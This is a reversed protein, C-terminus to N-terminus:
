AAVADTHKEVTKAPARKKPMATKAVKKKAVARKTAPKEKKLVALIAPKRFDKRKALHERIQDKTMPKNLKIINIHTNKDRVLIEPYVPLERNTARLTFRGDVM